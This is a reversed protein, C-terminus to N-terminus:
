TVSGNFRSENRKVRVKILFWTLLQRNNKSHYPTCSCCFLPCSLLQTMTLFFPSLIPITMMSDFHVLLDSGLSCADHVCALVGGISRTCELHTASQDIRGRASTRYMCIGQTVKHTQYSSQWCNTGFESWQGIWSDICFVLVSSNKEMVTWQCLTTCIREWSRYMRLIPYEIPLWQWM